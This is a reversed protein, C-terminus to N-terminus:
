AIATIAALGCCKLFKSSGDTYIVRQLPQTPSIIRMCAAAEQGRSEGGSTKIKIYIYRTHDSAQTPCEHTLTPCEHTLTPYERIYASRMHLKHTSWKLVLYVCLISCVLICLIVWLDNCNVQTYCHEVRSNPVWSHSTANSRYWIHVPLQLM